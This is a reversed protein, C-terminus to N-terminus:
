VNQIAIHELPVIREIEKRAKAESVSLEYASQMNVWFEASTGFFRALRLATDATIGRTENVIASIRSAPVGIALSLAHPTIRWPALFEERLIEGPHTRIRHTEM